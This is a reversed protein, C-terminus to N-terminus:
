PASRPKLVIFRRIDGIFIFVDQGYKDLMLITNTSMGLICGFYYEGDITIVKVRKKESILKEIFDDGKYNQYIEKDM